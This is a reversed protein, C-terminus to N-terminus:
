FINPLLLKFVLYAFPFAFLLGDIRDFVGGHGPIINGSDKIELKRKIYSEFLDGLQSVVSILISILLFVLFNVNVVFLYAVAAILGTVVVGCLSGSITKNPSIKVALKPGQLIQGGFYAFSDTAVVIAIVYIILDVSGSHRISLLCALPVIIYLGTFILWKKKHNNTKELVHSAEAFMLIALALVAFNFILGGIGIIILAGVAMVASSILRTRLSSFSFMNHRFFNVCGMSYVGCYYFLMKYFFFYYFVDNLFVRNGTM